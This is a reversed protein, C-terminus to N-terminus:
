YKINISLFAIITIVCQTTDYCIERSFFSDFESTRILKILDCIIIVIVILSMVWPSIAMSSNSVSCFFFFDSGNLPGGPISRRDWNFWRQTFSRRARTKIVRLRKWYIRVYLIGTIINYQLRRRTQTPPFLLYFIFSYIVRRLVNGTKYCNWRARAITM